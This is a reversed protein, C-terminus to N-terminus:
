NAGFATFFVMMVGFGFLAVAGVLRLVMSQWPKGVASWCLQIAYWFAAVALLGFFIVKWNIHLVLLGSL